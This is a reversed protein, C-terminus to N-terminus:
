PMRERDARIRRIAVVAEREARELWERVAAIRWAYRNGIKFPVPLDRCGRSIAKAVAAETRGIMRAFEPIYIVERAIDTARWTAPTPSPTLRTPGAAGLSLGDAVKSTGNNRYVMPEAIGVGLQRFELPADAPGTVSFPLRTRQQPDCCAQVIMQRASSAQGSGSATTGQRPFGHFMGRM